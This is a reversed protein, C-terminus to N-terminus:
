GRLLRVITFGVLVTAYTGCLALAPRKRCASAFAVMLVPIIPLGYRSPVPYFNANLHIYLVVAPGGGLM